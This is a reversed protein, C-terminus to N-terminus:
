VTEKDSNWTDEQQLKGKVTIRCLPHWVFRAKLTLLWMPNNCKISLDWERVQKDTMITLVISTTEIPTAHNSSTVKEKGGELQIQYTVCTRAGTDYWKKVIYPGVWPLVGKNAWGRCVTPYHLWVRDIVSFPWEQAWKDYGEQQRWRATTLHEDATQFTEKLTTTLNKANDTVLTYQMDSPEVSIMLDIPLSM